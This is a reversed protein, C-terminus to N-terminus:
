IDSTCCFVCLVYKFLVNKFHRVINKSMRSGKDSAQVKQAVTYIVYTIVSSNSILLCSAVTTQTQLDCNLNDVLRAQVVVIQALYIALNLYELQEVVWIDDLEILDSHLRSKQTPVTKVARRTHM